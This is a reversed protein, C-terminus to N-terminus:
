IKNVLKTERNLIVLWSYYECFVIWSLTWLVTWLIYKKILFISNVTYIRHVTYVTYINIYLISTLIANSNESISPTVHSSALSLPSQIAHFFFGGNSLHM